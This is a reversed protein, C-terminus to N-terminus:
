PPGGAIERDDTRPAVSHKRHLIGDAGAHQDGADPCPLDQRVTGAVPGAVHSSRVMDSAAAPYELHDPRRVVPAAERRYPEALVQFVTGPDVREGDEGQELPIHDLEPAFHLFFLRDVMGLFRSSCTRAWPYGPRTLVPFLPPSTGGSRM